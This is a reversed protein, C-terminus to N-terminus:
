AVIAEASTVGELLRPTITSTAFDRHDNNVAVVVEPDRTRCAEILDLHQALSVRQAEGVKHLLLIRYHDTHEWLRSIERMLRSTGPGRFPVFHMERHAINARWLDGEVLAEEMEVRLHTMRDLDADRLHPVRLRIAETELLSTIHQLESFDDFSLKAVWYGRRPENIVVGENQLQKLAERVPVPSVRCHEAIDDVRLKAGPALEGTALLQRIYLLVMEQVTPQIMSPPASVFTARQSM